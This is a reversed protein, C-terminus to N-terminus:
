FDLSVGLTAQFVGVSMNYNQSVNTNYGTSTGKFTADSALYDVGIGIGIIKAAMFKLKAGACYGFNNGTSFSNVVADYTAAGNTNETITPYTSSVIGGLLKVELKIGAAGFSLYPGVLYSSIKDGGSTTITESSNNFKGVDYANNNIGYQAMVGLIPIFKFGVFADFCSGIKAYGNITGGSNYTTVTSSGYDRGPMSLGGDVGLTFQAKAVFSVLVVSILVVYKKM